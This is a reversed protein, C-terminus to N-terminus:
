FNPLMVRGSSSSRIAATSDNSYLENELALGPVGPTLGCLARGSAVPPSERVSATVEVTLGLVCRKLPGAQHGSLPAM